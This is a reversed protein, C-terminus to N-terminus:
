RLGIKHVPRDRDIFKDLGLRVGPVLHVDPVGLGPFLLEDPEQLAFPDLPSHPPGRGSIFRFATEVAPETTASDLRSDDPTILGRVHPGAAAPDERM